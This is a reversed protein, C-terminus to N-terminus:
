KKRKKGKEIPTLEVDEQETEDSVETQPIAPEVVKEKSTKEFTYNVFPIRLKWQSDNKIAVGCLKYAIHGGGLYTPCVYIAGLINNGGDPSEIDMDEGNGSIDVKKSITKVVVKGEPTTDLDKQAVYWILWGDKSGVANDLEMAYPVISDSNAIWVGEPQNRDIKLPLQKFKVNGEVEIDRIETLSVVPEYNEEVKKYATDYMWPKLAGETLVLGAETKVGLSYFHGFESRGNRGYVKGNKKNKVQYSQKIVIVSRCVAKETIIQGASKGIVLQSYSDVCIGLVVILTLVLRKTM